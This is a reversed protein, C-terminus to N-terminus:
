EIENMILAKTGDTPEIRIIKASKDLISKNERMNIKKLLYCIIATDGVLM